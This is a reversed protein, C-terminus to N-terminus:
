LERRELNLPISLLDDLTQHPADVREEQELWNLCQEVLSIRRERIQDRLDAKLESALRHPFTCCAWKDCADQRMEGVVEEAFDERDLIFDDLNASKADYYPFKRVRFTKSGGPMGLTRLLSAGLASEELVGM